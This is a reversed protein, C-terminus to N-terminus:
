TLKIDLIQKVRQSQYEGGHVAMTGAIIEDTLDIRFDGKSDTMIRLLNVLNNGFMKSADASMVSPYDSRGAITVGNTIVATGNETLECNGGSSAALDIIVSGPRMREVTEKLVLVPAKRGPIQATAIIVDAASAREQILEQQKKRFEESQEVAYGGATADERAGEVEIFKGGLSKVEDKVASRVDFVEVVAGLKRAVAIAQLGAVGAGLILVRAPKITGAASMFMPFFRPLMSAAELVAKYGSVTAMSSLIDMSQARTIRPVLDLAMISLKGTRAKELWERNSVPDLATFIIQGERFLTIDESVPPNVTLLLGSERIVGSREAVAAGAALYQDDSAFAEEGAGTEVLVKLGLKVLAATEGPLLAVRKEGGTERLIGAIM